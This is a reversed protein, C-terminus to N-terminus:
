VMIYADIITGNLASGLHITNNELTTTSTIVTAATAEKVNGLFTSLVTNHPLKYPLGLKDGFGVSVTDGSANTKIPLGIEIVTKFAKNGEAETTANLAITETIADGNYNTGKIVVDGVIGAANGIIKINRPVLPNTINATITQVVTTLGKAALIGTNSAAVAKEAKVQFHAVYSRDVKKGRVNTPLLNGVGPFFKSM